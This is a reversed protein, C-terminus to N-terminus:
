LCAQRSGAAAEEEEEEEEEARGRGGVCGVTRGSFQYNSSPPLPPLSFPLSPPLSRLFVVRIIGLRM